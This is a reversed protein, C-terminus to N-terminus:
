LHNSPEHSPDHVRGRRDGNRHRASQCQPPTWRQRLSRSSSAPPLRCFVRNWALSFVNLTLLTSSSSTFHSNVVPPSTDAVGATSPSVTYKGSQAPLRYATSLHVPWCRHFDLMAAALPTGPSLALAVGAIAPLLTIM